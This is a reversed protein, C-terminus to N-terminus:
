RRKAGPATGALWALAATGDTLVGVNTGRNRTVTEGFGDITVAAGLLAVKVRGHLRLAAAVGMTYKDTITLAVPVATADVLVKRIRRTESEASVRRLLHDLRSWAVSGNVTILLFGPGKAVATQFEDAEVNVPDAV